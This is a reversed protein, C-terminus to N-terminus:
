ALIRGITKCVPMDVGGGDGADADADGFSRAGPLAFALSFKLPSIRRYKGFPVSGDIWEGGPDSVDHSLEVGPGPSQEPVAGWLLGKM